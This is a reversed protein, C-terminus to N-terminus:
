YRWAVFRSQKQGQGMAVVRIETAGAERLAKKVDALHFSKAVLSTFWRCLGPHDAAERAMRTIFGIEGGACWLEGAKGGFNLQRGGHGLHRWKRATGDRAEKRSAHFPPNCLCVDFSEGPKVVGEFIRAPDPQHRLDIAEELGPNAMLIREASGLAEWDIDTGVFSWGYSRHGILAYIGSAGTGLDLVRVGLGEPIPGEGALLDAVHHVYDARGPIPPCLYDEPLDFGQIDYQTALLAGNLLKVARPDAFDVTLEGVPNRLLFPGLDPCAEVLAPLDYRGQHRNRPHLDQRSSSPARGTIPKM